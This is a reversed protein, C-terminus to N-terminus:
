PIGESLNKAVFDKAARYVKIVRAISEPKVCAAIASSARSEFHPQYGCHEQFAEYTAMLSIAYSLDIKQSDRLDSLGFKTLQIDAPFAPQSALTVGILLGGSFMKAITQRCFM